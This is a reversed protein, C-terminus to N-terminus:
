PVFFRSLLQSLGGRRQARKLQKGGSGRKSFIESFQML